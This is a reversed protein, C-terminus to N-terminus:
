ESTRVSQRLRYACPQSSPHHLSRFGARGASKFYSARIVEFVPEPFGIRGAARGCRCGRTQKRPGEGWRAATSPSPRKSCGPWQSDPQGLPATSSKISQQRLTCKGRILKHLTSESGTAAQTAGSWRKGPTPYVSARYPAPSETDCDTRCLSPLRHILRSRHPPALRNQPSDL